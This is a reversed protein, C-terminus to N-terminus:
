SAGKLAADIAANNRQVGIWNDVSEFERLGELAARLHEIEAVLERGVFMLGAADEAAELAQTAEEPTM